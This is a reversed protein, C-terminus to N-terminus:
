VKEGYFRKLRVVADNYDGKTENLTKKINALSIATNPENVTGSEDKGAGFNQIKECAEKVKTLGLTASSGKLFHGLKTIENLDQTEIAREMKVFTTEAQDFFGFVLGRSFERLPDDDDMELIQEFTTEEIHDGLSALDPLKDNIPQPPQERQQQQEQQIHSPLPDRVHTTASPAM